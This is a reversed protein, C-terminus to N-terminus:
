IIGRQKFYIEQEKASRKYFRDRPDVAPLVLCQFDFQSNKVIYKFIYKKINYYTFYLM